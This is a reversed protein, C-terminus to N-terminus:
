QKTEPPPGIDPDTIGHRQRYEVIFAELEHNILDMLRMDRETPEEGPDLFSFVSGWVHQAGAYFTARLQDRQDVPMTRWNPYINSIYAAFGLAIIQGEDVARGTIAEALKRIAERREANARQERGM